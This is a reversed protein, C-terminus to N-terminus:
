VISDAGDKGEYFRSASCQQVYAKWKKVFGCAWVPCAAKM